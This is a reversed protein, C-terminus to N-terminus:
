LALERSLAARVEPAARWRAVFAHVMADDGSLVRRLDRFAAAIEIQSPRPDAARWIGRVATPALAGPFSLSERKKEGPRLGTIEIPIRVGRPAAAAILRRALEGIAIPEGMDLVYVEGGEALAASALVLGVAEKVTMFYRTAEPDTVTVPGGRAIQDLFLPVVSGSSGYVNGFRVVSFVTSAPRAALDLVACEALFKSVGLASAPQVAKDTSILVFRAVGAERALRAITQTGLANAVLGARPNHEILPVHKYAAAHLVVDVRHGRLVSLVTDGDTVSGIVPVFDVNESGPWGRLRQLVDYLAAESLDFLVLRAPALRIVQRCIESGISGGAGTVLISRGRFPADPPLVPAISRRGLIAEAEPRTPAPERVSLAAPLTLASLLLYTAAALVSGDGGGSGGLLMGASPGAGLLLLGGAIRRRFAPPQGEGAALALGALIALGALAFAVQGPGAPTLFAPAVASVAEAARPWGSRAFRVHRDDQRM